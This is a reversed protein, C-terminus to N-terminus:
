TPLPPVPLDHASADILRELAIEVEEESCFFAPALRLLDHRASVLIGQQALWTEMQEAQSGVQVAVFPGRQEPDLPSVVSLGRALAGRILFESLAELHQRIAVIGMQQVLQIGAHAAYAQMLPPTGQEFRYGGPAYDVSALSPLFPDSRALWGTQTPTLALGPRAYLFALGPLGLLYKHAGCVLFDVETEQIDIPVAGIAQYADCLLLAGHQHAIEALAQLNQLAGTTYSVLSMCLLATQADLYPEVMEPTYIGNAPVDILSVSNRWKNQGALWIQSVTPFNDATVVVHDRGFLPLCSSLSSIAESVSSFLAITEAPAGILTAFAARVEEVEDMWADWAIGQELSHEYRQIAARVEVSFPAHSCAALYIKDRFAPFHDRAESLVPRFMAVM